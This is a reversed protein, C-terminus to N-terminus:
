PAQRAPVYAKISGVAVLQGEGKTARVECEVYDRQDERYKRLVTGTVRVRDGPRTPNTLKINLKSYGSLLTGWPLSDTVAQCLYQCTQNGDGVLGGYMHSRSYDEDVHLNHGLLWPHESDALTHGLFVQFDDIHKQTVEIALERLSEGEEVEEFSRNRMDTVRM